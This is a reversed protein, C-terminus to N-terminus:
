LANLDIAAGMARQGAANPHLHDGSDYAPLLRHPDSPDRLAKDFDFIGDFARSTRVFTNVSERTAEGRQSYAYDGEVPTLTCAFVRLGHVHARTAIQLLGSDIRRADNQQPQQQIDNIGLLVWKVWSTAISARSRTRATPVATSCSAIVALGPM